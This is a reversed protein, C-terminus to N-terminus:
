QTFSDNNWVSISLIGRVGIDHCVIDDPSKFVNGLREIDNMFFSKLSRSRAMHFILAWLYNEGM